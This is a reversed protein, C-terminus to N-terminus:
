RNEFLPEAVILQLQQGHGRHQQIMHTLDQQRPKRQQLDDAPQSEGNKGVHDGLAAGMGAVSLAVKGGHGGQRQGALHHIHDRLTRQVLAHQGGEHQGDEGNETHVPQPFPSIKERGPQKQAHKGGQSHDAQPQRLKQLGKIKSDVVAEHTNQKRNRHIQSRPFEFLEQGTRYTQDQQTQLVAAPLPIGQKRQDGQCHVVAVPAFPVELQQKVEEVGAMQCRQIQDIRQHLM